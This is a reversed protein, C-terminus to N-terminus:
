FQAWPGWLLVLLRIHNIKTQGTPVADVCTEFDSIGVTWPDSKKRKLNWKFKHKHKFFFTQIQVRELPDINSKMKCHESDSLWTTAWGRHHKTRDTKTWVKLAFMSKSSWSWGLSVSKAAACKRGLRSCCLEVMFIVPPPLFCRHYMGSSYM